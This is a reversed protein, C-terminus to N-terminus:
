FNDGYSITIDELLENCLSLVDLNFTGNRITSGKIVEQITEEICRHGHMARHTYESHRLAENIKRLM